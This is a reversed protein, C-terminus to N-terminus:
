IVDYECASSSDKVASSLDKVASYKNPTKKKQKNLLIQKSTSCICYHLSSYREGIKYMQRTFQPFRIFFVGEM